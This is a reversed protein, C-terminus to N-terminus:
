SLNKSYVKCLSEYKNKVSPWDSKNWMGEKLGSEFTDHIFLAKKSGANKMVEEKIYAAGSMNDKWNTSKQLLNYITNIEYFIYATM